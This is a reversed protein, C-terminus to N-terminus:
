VSLTKTIVKGDHPYVSLADTCRKLVNPYVLTTKTFVEGDDPYVSPADTFGKLVNPYM